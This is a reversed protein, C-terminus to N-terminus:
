SWLYEIGRLLNSPDWELKLMELRQRTERAFAKTWPGHGAPPDVEMDADGMINNVYWGVSYKDLQRATERVWEVHFKDNDYESGFDSRRWIAYLGVFLTGRFGFASSTQNARLPPGPYILIGHSTSMHKAIQKALISIVERPFPVHIFMGHTYTASSNYVATKVLTRLVNEYDGQTSEIPLPAPTLEELRSWSSNLFLTTSRNAFSVSSWVLIPNRHPGITLFASSDIATHSTMHFDVFTNLGDKINREPFLLVKRELISPVSDHLKLRFGTVVGLMSGAGKLGFMLDSEASTITMTSGNKVSVMDISIINDSGAGFHRSGWGLGGGLLFGGLAVEGDYSGPFHFGYKRYEKMFELQKVGVQVYAEKLDPYIEIRKLASLDLLIGNPCISSVAYHLGSSRVGMCLKHQIALAVVPSVQEPATIAVIYFPFVRMRLYMSSGKQLSNDFSNLIKKYNTDNKRRQYIRGLLTSSSNLANIQSRLLSSEPQSNLQARSVLFKVERTRGEFLGMYTPSSVIFEHAAWFSSLLLTYSIFAGFGLM